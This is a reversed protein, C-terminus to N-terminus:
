TMDVIEAFSLTACLADCTTATGNARGPLARLPIRKRRRARRRAPPATGDGASSPPSSSTSSGMRRFCGNRRRARTGRTCRGTSAASGSAVSCRGVAAMRRAARRRRTRASSASTSPCSSRATESSAGARPMLATCCGTQAATQRGSLIRLDNTGPFSPFPLPLPHTHTRIHSSDIRKCAPVLFPREVWVSSTCICCVDSLVVTKETEVYGITAACTAQWVCVRVCM